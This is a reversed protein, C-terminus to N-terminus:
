NGFVLGAVKEAADEQMAPIAHSYVDLTFSVSSHGLRESVVKPHVGAALALTAHTHRLDHLRVRPLGSSAVARDFMQSFLDPHLPRGDARPFVLDHDQYHEALALRDKKQRKAHAKLVAVTKSDLAISRRGRETKPGGVRIEYDVTIVTQRVSLRNAEFDIDGWRLGLIEGRRMGTNASLYFAPHYDHDSAYDLFARLQEATWTKMERRSASLKPPSAFQAANRQATGWRVADGLARRVIVHINRVTKPSLGGKGNVRGSALLGAYFTNLAKPTIAQLKMGGLGPIVHKNINMRYSSLTSAQITPEIAPLWEDRLFTGFTTKAPAVYSNEQLRTIASALATDAEKRTRFGGQQIRQRKGAEDAGLEVKFWWRKSDKRRYVSGRM